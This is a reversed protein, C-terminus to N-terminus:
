SDDKTDKINALSEFVNTDPNYYDITGKSMDYMWGHIHIEGSDVKEKVAPYTLLNEIQFIVSVRETLRLLEEHELEKLELLEHEEDKELELQLLLKEEELLQLLLKPRLRWPQRREAGRRHRPWGCPRHSGPKPPRRPAVDTKLLADLTRGPVYDM